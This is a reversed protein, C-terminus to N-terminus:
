KIITLLPDGIAVPGTVSTINKFDTTNCVVVPTIIEFGAQAIANLDCEILLDGAKVAQGTNAHAAFFQGRLQLTDIGVHILLEVGDATTMSLAHSTSFMMSITGDAPAFVRGEAPRIAVGKGLLNQSFTPDAVSSIPIAEGQMPAAITLGRNRGFLKGLMETCKGESGTGTTAFFFWIGGSAM